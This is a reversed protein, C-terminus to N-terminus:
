ISMWVPSINAIYWNYAIEQAEISMNWYALRMTARATQYVSSTNEYESVEYAASQFINIRNQNQSDITVTEM